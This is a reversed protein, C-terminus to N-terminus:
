KLETPSVSTTFVVIPIFKWEATAKLERVLELGPEDPLGLDLLILNPLSNADQCERLIRRAERADSAFRIRVFPASESLIANLLAADGPNDEVYLVSRPGPLISENATSNM